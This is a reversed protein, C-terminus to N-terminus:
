RYHLVYPINADQCKHCILSALHLLYVTCVHPQKTKKRFVVAYTTGPVLLHLDFIHFSALRITLGLGAVNM